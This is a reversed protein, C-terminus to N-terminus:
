FIPVLRTVTRFIFIRFLHSSFSLSLTYFSHIVKEPDGSYGAFTVREGIKAGAPPDVLEVQTHDENSAALVMAM